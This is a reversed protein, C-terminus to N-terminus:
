QASKDDKEVLFQLDSIEPSIASTDGEDRPRDAPGAGDASRQDLSGKRGRVREDSPNKLHDIPRPAPSIPPGSPGDHGASRRRGLERPRDVSIRSDHRRDGLDTGRRPPVTRFPPPNIVKETYARSMQRRILYHASDTEGDYGIAMGAHRRGHDGTIRRVPNDCQGPTIM